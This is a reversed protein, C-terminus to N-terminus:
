REGPLIILKQGLVKARNQPTMRAVANQRIAEAFGLAVKDPVCYIAEDPTEQDFMLMVTGRVADSHGVQVTKPFIPPVNKAGVSRRRLELLLDRVALRFSALVDVSCTLDFEDGSSLQFKVVATTDDTSIATAIVKVVHASHNERDVM